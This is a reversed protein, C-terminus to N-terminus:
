ANKLVAILYFVKIITDLQLFLIYFTVRLFNDHLKIFMM